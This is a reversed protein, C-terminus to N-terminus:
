LIYRLIEAIQPGKVAPGPNWISFTHGCTWGWGRCEQGRPCTFCRRVQRVVGPNLLASGTIPLPTTLSETVGDPLPQPVLSVTSMQAM